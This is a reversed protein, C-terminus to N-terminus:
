AACPQTIIISGAPLQFDDGVTVADATVLGSGGFDGATSASFFGVHTFDESAAVTTWDLDDSHTMTVVGAVSTDPTLWTIQVRDTEAAANATGAAGPDGLYLKAWTYKTAWATLRESAALSSIGLTM